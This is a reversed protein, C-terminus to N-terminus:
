AVRNCLTRKIYIIAVLFLYSEAFVLSVNELITGPSIDCFPLLFVVNM